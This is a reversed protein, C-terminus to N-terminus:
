MNKFKLFLLISEVPSHIQIYQFELKWVFQDLNEISYMKNHLFGQFFTAQSQKFTGTPSNQGVIGVITYNGIQKSHLQSSITQHSLQAFVNPCALILLLFFFGPHKV